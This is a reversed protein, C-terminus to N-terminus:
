GSGGLGPTLWWLQGIEVVWQVVAGVDGGGRKRGLVMNQAPSAATGSFISPADKAFNFLM